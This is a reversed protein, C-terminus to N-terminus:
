KNKKKDGAKPSEDEGSSSSSSSSSSKDRKTSKKKKKKKGDDVERCIYKGDSGIWSFYDVKKLFQKGMRSKKVRNFDDRSLESTKYAHLGGKECYYTGNNAKKEPNSCPTGKMHHFCCKKINGGKPSNTRQKKKQKKSRQGPSSGDSSSSDNSKKRSKKFANMFDDDEFISVMQQVSRCQAAFQDRFGGGAGAHAIFWAAMRQNYNPPAAGAAAAAAAGAPPDARFREGEIITNWFAKDIKFRWADRNNEMAPPYEDYKESVILCLQEAEDPTLIAPVRGDVGLYYIFSKPYIFREKTKNQDAVRTNHDFSMKVKLHQGRHLKRDRVLLQMAKFSEIEIQWKKPIRNSANNFNDIEEPLVQEQFQAGGPHQLANANNIAAVAGQIAGAVDGLQNGIAVQANNLAQGNADIAAHIVAAANAAAQVNPDAM